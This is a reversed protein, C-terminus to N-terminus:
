RESELRSVGKRESWEKRRDRKEEGTILRDMPHEEEGPAPLAKLSPMMGLPQFYDPGLEIGVHEAFQLNLEAAFLYKVYTDVAVKYPRLDYDADDMAGPMLEEIQRLTDKASLLRYRMQTPRLASSLGAEEQLLGYRLRLEESRILAESLMALWQVVQMQMEAGVPLTMAQRLGKTSHELLDIFEPVEGIEPLEALEAQTREAKKLAKGAVAFLKEYVQGNTESGMVEKEKRTVEKNRALDNLVLVLIGIVAFAAIWIMQQESITELIEM